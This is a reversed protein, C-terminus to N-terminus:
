YNLVAILQAAKRALSGLWSCKSLGATPVAPVTCCAASSARWVALSTGAALRSASSRSSASSARVNGVVFLWTQV